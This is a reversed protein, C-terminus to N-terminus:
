VTKLVANLLLEALEGPTQQKREALETLRRLSGKDVRITLEVPQAKQLSLPTNEVAMEELIVNSTDLELKASPRAKSSTTTGM